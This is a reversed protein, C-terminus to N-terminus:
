LHRLVTEIAAKVQVVDDRPPSTRTYPPGLKMSATYADRVARQVTEPLVAIKGLSQGIDRLPSMQADSFAAWSVSGQPPAIVNPIQRAFSQFHVRLSSRLTAAEQERIRQAADEDAKRADADEKRYQEMLRLQRETVIAAIIAVVAAVVAALAGITAVIANFDV